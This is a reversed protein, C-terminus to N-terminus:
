LSAKSCFMKMDFRDADFGTWVGATATIIQGPYRNENQCLFFEGKRSTWGQAPLPTLNAERGTAVERLAGCTITYDWVENYEKKYSIASVVKGAPCYMPTDARHVSFQEFDVLKLLTGDYEKLHSCQYTFDYDDDLKLNTIISDGCDGSYIDNNYSAQKIASMVPDLVKKDLPNSPVKLAACEVNAQGNPLTKVSGGVIKLFPAVFDQSPDSEWARVDKLINYVSLNSTSTMRSTAQLRVWWDQNDTTESCSHNSTLLITSTSPLSEVRLSVRPHDCQVSMMTNASSPQLDCSLENELGNTLAIRGTVANTPPPTAASAAHALLALCLLVMRNCIVFLLKM